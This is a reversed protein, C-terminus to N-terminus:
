LSQHLEAYAMMIHYLSSAPLWHVLREGAASFHEHWGGEICDEFFLRMLNDVGQGISCRMARGRRRMVAHAKLAETQPWLRTSGKRGRGDRSVVDMVLGSDGVYGHTEAFRYLAEAEAATDTGLLRDCQALLWVWEFHHGPEIHDGDEGAAPGLTESFFEGLTGTPRDFLHDRFVGVLERALDAFVAEGTAEFLSLAAELLHMHPNQQRPGPEVPLTNLFGAVPGRMAASIWAVTLRAQAVAAQDGTARVYWGIAFLVFALDYLDAADDIVGGERGITRVWSGDPRAAHRTIFAYSDRAADLGDPWGLVAAQSFAFIQRAQVRVRKFAVDTPLGELSLREHFGLGPADRGAGVWLPLARGFLWDRFRAHPVRLDEAAGAM